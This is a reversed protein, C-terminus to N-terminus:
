GCTGVAGCATCFDCGDKRIVTMNGCEHCLSGSQVRQGGSERPTELIGMERRPYGQADLVGLMAYRHLILQALYAVTSPYNRQRREGPVFALFDGLPDSWNVLKRLKMGVWAPDIVRMDLSLLRALGDLARPYYGALYMAYPRTVGDPLTIEKLGLVFDEGSAPNQIDVTWALTGDTGTRPEEVAFMADLVPHPRGDPSLLDPAKEDLAGLTECRWRIVQGLGAVVSPVLRREGRPPFPMEFSQDGPTRSLVDLKLKLWARDRARMDMSLTKAVAGLGRPQEAGNVWVEFPFARGEEEVHGVFLGFEGAPHRIMFTWSPNGGPLEPRGPWVLSSLVPMPLSQISLRRNADDLHVDQPAKKEEGAKQEPSDVSLVSGLVSNPRYTALGKLGSRWAKLYLDEFEAYPYDEPVNVTKSISTDVFPAVAAVMEEHAQASIALATTFYEPLRKTDGGLHRFLRWAYDEVAYEKWTGDAMRKRRTYTWSFPPEIGNSANDAFALSITGTPAISLLHSNRIGHTRIQQKIEAPLRSAFNGGSLYMDANFLPFAGREKALGVSALYARDRMVESIRTAMARAEPTDYRLKLMILADGLGTFGLGVRRKAMAEAQQEPLPWCTVDLVNDLMRVSVEVVRGFAEFDFQAEDTFPDRVMRTLNISGLDCCGYPPLPQEACQGTALGNFIVANGDPQTTDYVPKRGAPEIAAIRTTFRQTKRLVKDAAWAAYKANKEDLLFGIERMFVERSEGDILLEHLDRCEYQARGGHGDPLSRTGAHRRLHIRSLVGFNALLIQVDRLLPREVSTLRISCSQSSDSVNVTGDTQFLARLYGRVCAETGRWIVEPVRLKSDANFGLKGLARALLVSRLMVLNRQPIAVVGVQYDRPRDSQGAILTNIHAAVVDAIARDGNWLNVVAAQQGKGRNTFHGDGTILGILTGLSEDGARGFQGKGSQVWLEDGVSLDSLKLKGRPTYFEHWATAEIEFGDESTVRFVDASASTMFAPVAPRVSTGREARRPQGLDADAGGLCRNDVTVELPARAAELEAIPVLGYQTAIRTDGTVCPNTSEITECYYLNNDRNMRDLFLVGPEAHDYTSRMIQDWLERAPLKRYVWMGDERRYAGAAKVDPAPESKHVLTADGNTEVARMFEDTVGVSVNFNTLDGRDKAHIFDEIDPHDCRLVGMQAGRRSGASEVTECSRDFVRMYSVPGSARSMTGRVLAGQPRISSFDYGVGGGRRMTEAAQALATYIGPRGDVTETVSDGVPQVFCNILTASLATGAASSIRGAPIFGQEQTELFRAEWRARHDDPENIALARAVRRRVDAQTAEHGKAYKELLVEGSIEQPALTDISPAQRTTDRTTM